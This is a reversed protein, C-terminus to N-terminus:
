CRRMNSHTFVHQWWSRKISTMLDHYMNAEECKPKCLGSQSGLCICAWGGNQIMDAAAGVASDRGKVEM